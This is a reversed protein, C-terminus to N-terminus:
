PAPVEVLNGHDDVVASRAPWHGFARRVDLLRWHQGQHHRLWLVDDCVALTSRASHVLHPEPQPDRIHRAGRCADIAAHLARREALHRANM